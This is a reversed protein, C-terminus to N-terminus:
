GSLCPDLMAHPPEHSDGADLRAANPYDSTIFVTDGPQMAEIVGAIQELAPAGSPDAAAHGRDTDTAPAGIAAEFSCRTRGTRTPTLDIMLEAAALTKAKAAALMQAKAAEIMEAALTM